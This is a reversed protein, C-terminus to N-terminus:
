YITGCIIYFPRVKWPFSILFMIYIHIKYEYKIFYYHIKSEFALTQINLLRLRPSELATVLQSPSQQSQESLYDIVQLAGSMEGCSLVIRQGVSFLKQHFM